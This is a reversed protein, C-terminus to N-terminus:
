RIIQLKEVLRESSTRIELLYLGNPTDPLTIEFRQGLINEQHILKGQLDYLRVEGSLKRESDIQLFGNTPNPYLSIGGLSSPPISTVSFDDDKPSLPIEQMDFGIARSQLWDLQATTTDATNATYQLILTGIQGSGSVNNQDTRVLGVIIGNYRPETLVMLDTGSTGLWSNDAQFSISEVSDMDAQIQFSLGYISVVSSDNTGLMVPVRLQKNAPFNGTPPDFFLPIGSSSTGGLRLNQHTKGLNVAIGTTDAFGISGDGDADVHKLDRGNFITDNWNDAVQARWSLSADARVPGTKGFHIGIQFLDDMECDQDHDTDGPYVMDPICWFRVSDMVFNPTIGSAATFTSAIVNTDTECFCTRPTAFRDNSLFHINTTNNCMKNECGDWECGFYLGIGLSNADNGSYSLGVLNNEITCGGVGVGNTGTFDQIGFRTIATDNNVFTSNSVGSDFLGLKIGIQNGDFTCNNLGDAESLDAGVGCNIFSVNDESGHIDTSLT